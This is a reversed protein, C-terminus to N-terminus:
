AEGWGEGRWWTIFDSDQELETEDAFTIIIFPAGLPWGM